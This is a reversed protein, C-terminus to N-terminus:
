HTGVQFRSLVVYTLRSLFMPCALSRIMWAVAESLRNESINSCDFDSSVERSKICRAIVVLMTFSFFIPPNCLRVASRASEKM